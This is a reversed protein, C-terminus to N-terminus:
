KKYRESNLLEPNEYVNGVVEVDNGSMFGLTTFAGGRFKVVDTTEFFASYKSVNKIVDGEYIERGNKDKLGTYQMLFHRGEVIEEKENWVGFVGDSLVVDEQQKMANEEPFWARFKIERM